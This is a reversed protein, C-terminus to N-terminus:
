LTPLVIALMPLINELYLDTASVVSPITMTKVIYFTFVFLKFSCFFLLLFLILLCICIIYINVVNQCTTLPRLKHLDRALWYLFSSSELLSFKWRYSCRFYLQFHGLPVKTLHLALSLYELNIHWHQHLSLRSQVYITTFYEPIVWLPSHSFM